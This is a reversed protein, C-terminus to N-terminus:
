RPTWTEAEVTGPLSVHVAKPFRSRAPWYVSVNIVDGLAM